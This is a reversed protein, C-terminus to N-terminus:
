SISIDAKQCNICAVAQGAIIHASKIYIQRGENEPSIVTHLVIIERQM